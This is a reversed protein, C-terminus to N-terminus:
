AQHFPSPGPMGVPGGEAHKQTNSIDNTAPNTLPMDPWGCARATNGFVSQCRQLTLNCNPAIVIPIKWPKVFVPIARKAIITHAGVTSAMNEGEYWLKNIGDEIEANYLIICSKWYNPDLTVTDPDFAITRNGQISWKGAPIEVKYQDFNLGCFTGYPDHNCHTQTYYIKVLAGSAAYSSSCELTITNDSFSFRGAVGTFMIIANKVEERYRFLRVRLKKCDNLFLANMWLQTAAFQVKLEEDSETRKISNHKCPHPYYTNGKWVIEETGTCYRSITNTVRGPLELEYLYRIHGVVGAKEYADWEKKEYESLIYNAM